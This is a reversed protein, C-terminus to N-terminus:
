TGPCATPASAGPALCLDTRLPPKDKRIKFRTYKGIASTKSVLVKITAHTRLLRGELKRIRVTKTPSTTRGVRAVTRRSLHFPCGHGRCRITITAGYPANVTLRKIRAGRRGVKGSIRVVPFPSMPRLLSSTTPKTLPDPARVAILQTSTSTPLDPDLTDTVALSVPYTGPAAFTRTNTQAAGDNFLKDGDLDWAFSLGGQHPSYVFTVQQGPLPLAPFSAFAASPGDVNFTKSADGDTPDHLRVTVGGPSAYTYAVDQGTADNFQGDGDLDWTQDSASSSSHFMILKGTKPTTGPPDFDFTVAIARSVFALSGAAVLCCIGLLRL